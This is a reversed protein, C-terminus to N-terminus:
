KMDMMFDRGYIRLSHSKAGTNISYCHIKGGVERYHQTSEVALRNQGECFHWRMNTSDSKAVWTLRRMIIMAPKVAHIVFIDAITDKCLAQSHAEQLYAQNGIPM